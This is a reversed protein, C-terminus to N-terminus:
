SFSGCREVFFIVLDINKNKLDSFPYQCTNPDSKVCDKTIKHKNRFVENVYDINWPKERINQTVKEECTREKNRKFGNEDCGKRNFGDRDFM